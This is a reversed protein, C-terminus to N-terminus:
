GPASSSLLCFIFIASCSCLEAKTNTTNLFISLTIRYNSCWMIPEKYLLLHFEKIILAICYILGIPASVIHRCTFFPTQLDSIEQSKRIKNMIFKQFIKLKHNKETNQTILFSHAFHAGRCWLGILTLCRLLLQSTLCIKQNPPILPTITQM